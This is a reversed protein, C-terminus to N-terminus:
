PRPRVSSAQELAEGGIPRIRRYVAWVANVYWRTEAYPPVGRYRRVASEGANYAALALSWDGFARYHGLLTRATGLLNEWPDRPDVSATRATLPMLQGLGTAGAGSTSTHDFRSEIYVVAALLWPDIGERRAAATVLEGMWSAQKWTLRPNSGHALAAIVNPTGSGLAMQRFLELRALWGRTIREQFASHPRRLGERFYAEAEHTRGAATAAIGAWIAPLASLPKAQAVQAFVSMAHLSAGSRYADIGMQLSFASPGEGADAPPIGIMGILAILSAAVGRISLGVSSAV